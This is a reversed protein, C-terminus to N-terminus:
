DIVIVNSTGNGNDTAQAPAEACIRGIQRRLLEQKIKREEAASTSEMIAANMAVKKDQMNYVDEDVTNRTVLKYVTVTKKQGIRHCRDEAQLDNFPNFDLDHM